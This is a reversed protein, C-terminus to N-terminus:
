KDLRLFITFIIDKPLNKIRVDVYNKGRKIIEAKINLFDSEIHDITYKTYVRFTFNKVEKLSNNQVMVSINLPTLKSTLKIKNEIKILKVIDKVKLIPYGSEKIITLLYKLLKNNKYGLIHSHVNFNFVGGIDLVFNMSTLVYEKLKQNSWNYQMLYKTDDVGIKPLYVFNNNINALIKSNSNALLYKFKKYSKINIIQKDRIIGDRNQFIKIAGNEIHKNKINKLTFITANLDLNNCLKVFNSINQNYNDELTVAIVKDKDVYPYKVVKYGYYAYNIMDLFYKTKISRDVFLYFPFSFYIWHGKGYIGDWVVGNLFNNNSIIGKNININSFQLISKPGSFIPIADWFKIRVKQSDKLQIPSLLSSVIYYNKRKDYKLFGKHTLNSIDYTFKYGSNFNYIINGGRKLYKKIANKEFYTLKTNDLVLVLSNTSIKKLSNANIIDISYKDQLLSKIFKISNEHMLYTKNQKMVEDSSPSDLIYIDEKKFNEMFKSNIGVYNQVVNDSFLIAFSLLMVIMGIVTFFEIIDDKISYKKKM